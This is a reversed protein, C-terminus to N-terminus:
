YKETKYPFFYLVLNFTITGDDGVTQDQLRPQFQNIVKVARM